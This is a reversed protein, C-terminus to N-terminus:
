CHMLVVRVKIAPFNLLQSYIFNRVVSLCSTLFLSSLCRECFPQSQYSATTRRWSSLKKPVPQYILNQRAGVCLFRDEGLSGEFFWGESPHLLKLWGRIFYLFCEWFIITNYISVVHVSTVNIRLHRMHSRVIYRLGQVSYTCVYVIIM